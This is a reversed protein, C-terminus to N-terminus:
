VTPLLSSPLQVSRNGRPQRHRNPLPRPAQLTDSTRESCPEHLSHAPSGDGAAWSDAHRSSARLSISGKRIQPSRQSRTQPGPLLSAPRRLKHPARKTHKYCSPQSSSSAFFYQSSAPAPQAKDAIASNISIQRSAARGPLITSFDIFSDCIRVRGSEPDPKGERM